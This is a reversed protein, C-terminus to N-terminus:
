ALLVTCFDRVLYAKDAEQIAEDPLPDLKNIDRGM